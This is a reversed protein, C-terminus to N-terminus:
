LAARVPGARGGGKGGAAALEARCAAVEAADQLHKLTHKPRGCVFGRRALLVRLWGPAMRVGTRDALYASLRASTWM